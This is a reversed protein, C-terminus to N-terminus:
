PKCVECLIFLHYAYYPNHFTKKIKLDCSEIEALVSKKPYSKRNIEWYHPNHTDERQLLASENKDPLKFPLTYFLNFQSSMKRLIRQLFNARFQLYISSTPCPLSLFVFHRACRSLEKLATQFHNHPLHQLVEFACILDISQNPLPLNLIDGRIDPDFEPKIDLSMFQYNFNAILSEFIGEGKGIELVSNTQTKPLKLIESLQIYYSWFKEERLNYALRYLHDILKTDLGQLVQPTLTAESIVTKPGLNEALADLKDAQHPYQAKLHEFDAHHLSISFKSPQTHM